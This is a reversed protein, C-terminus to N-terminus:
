NRAIRALAASFREKTAPKQVIAGAGLEAASRRIDELPLASFLILPPVSRQAKLLRRVLMEGRYGGIQLDLVIVAYAADAVVRAFGEDLNTALTPEHGLQALLEATVPGLDPDDEILLIRM